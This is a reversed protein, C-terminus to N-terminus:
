RLGYQFEKVLHGSRKVNCKFIYKLMQSASNCILISLFLDELWKDMPWIVVITLSFPFRSDLAEELDVVYTTSAWVSPGDKVGKRLANVM